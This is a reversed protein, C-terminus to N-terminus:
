SLGFSSPAPLATTLSSAGAILLYFWIDLFLDVETIDTIHLPSLVARFVARRQLGSYLNIMSCSVLM